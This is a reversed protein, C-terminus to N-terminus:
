LPSSNPPKPRYNGVLVGEEDIIGVRALQIALTVVKELTGNLRKGSPPVPDRRYRRGTGARSCGDRPLTDFFSRVQDQGPAAIPGDVFHRVTHDAEVSRQANEGAPM